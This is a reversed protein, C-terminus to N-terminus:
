LSEVPHDHVWGKLVAGVDLVNKMRECKELRAASEHCDAGISWTLLLLQLREGIAPFFQGFPRKRTSANPRYQERPTPRCSYFSERFSDAGVFSLLLVPLARSSDAAGRVPSCACVVLSSSSLCIFIFTLFARISTRSTPSFNPETATTMAAFLRATNSLRITGYPKM